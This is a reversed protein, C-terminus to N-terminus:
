KGTGVFDVRGRLVESKLGGSDTVLLQHAYIGVVRDGSVPLTDTDQLTIAIQTGNDVDQNYLVEIRSATKTIGTIVAPWDPDLQKKVIWEIETVGTLDLPTTGDSGDYLPIPGIVVDTGVVIADTGVLDQRNPSSSM